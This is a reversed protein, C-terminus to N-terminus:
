DFTQILQVQHKNSSPDKIIPSVHECDSRSNEASELTDFTELKLRKKIKGLYKLRAIIEQGPYCGKTFSMVHDLQDLNLHQPIFKETNKADIHPFGFQFCFQQYEEPSLGKAHCSNDLVILQSNESLGIMIESELIEVKM